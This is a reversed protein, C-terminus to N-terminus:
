EFVTTTVDMRPHSPFALGRVANAICRQVAGSPPNTSVTVGVARGHQVAACIRISTTDPVGCHQFYTGRNLVAAYRAQSIDPPTSRDGIRM